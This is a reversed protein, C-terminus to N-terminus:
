RRSKPNKRGRPRTRIRASQVGPKSSSKTVNGTQRELTLSLNELKYYKLAYKTAQRACHAVVYSLGRAMGGPIDENGAESWWDLLYNVCFLAKAAGKFSDDVELAEATAKLRLDAETLATEIAREFLPCPKRAEEFMDIAGEAKENEMKTEEIIKPKRFDWGAV